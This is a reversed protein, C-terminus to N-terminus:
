VVCNTVACVKIPLWTTGAQRGEVERRTAQRQGGGAPSKGDRRRDDSWARDLGRPSADYQSMTARQRSSASRPAASGFADMDIHIIKRTTAEAATQEQDSASM